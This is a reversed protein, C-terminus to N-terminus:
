LHQSDKDAKREHGKGDGDFEPGQLVGYDVAPVEGSAAKWGAKKKERKAEYLRKDAEAMLAELGPIQIGSASAMGVCFSLSYPKGSQANRNALIARSRVLICKVESLSCDIALVTFEDGGLRAIIDTQRFSQVLVAAITKIAEDGEAHGHLDNIAKLSDLDFFILLIASGRRRAIDAQKKALDLFGRRNYLGTMEDIVSLREFKENSSRLANLARALDSTRAEVKLELSANQERIREVLRAGEIAKGLHERLVEFFDPHSGQAACVFFGLAEVRYALPFVLLDARQPLADLGGPILFTSPFSLGELKKETCFFVEASSEEQFLSLCFFSSREPIEEGLFQKISEADLSGLIRGTLQDFVSKNEMEAFLSRSAIEDQLTSLFRTTTREAEWRKGPALGRTLSPVLDQWAIIPIGRDHSAIVLEELLIRFRGLPESELAAVLADYSTADLLPERLGPTDLDEPRRSLCGCSRRPVFRTPFRRREAPSAEGRIASLTLRLAEVGLEEMPQSVTCLSPVSSRAALFDDFGAVSIQDPVSIGRRQLEKMAYLAMHDNAGILADFVECREDLLSTIASTGSHRLFDGPLVLSPLLPIDHADLSDRYASYREEADSVGEPGRIFAIRRRGHAEILHDVLARMGRYSEAVVRNQAEVDMGVYVIPLASFARLFLDIRQRSAQDAASPPLFIMGDLSHRDALDFPAQRENLARHIGDVSSDAYSILTVGLEAATKAAGRWIRLGYEGYFSNVFLGIKVKKGYEM